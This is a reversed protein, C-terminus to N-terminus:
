FPELNYIEVLAVGTADNKGRVIATYGGPPLTAVIASEHADTPAVGSDLIDQKQDSEWEDNQYVMNGSGDHLELIPDPLAGAVGQQALSPGIARVIVNTNTGSGLIFGGIMVNDNSQVLGRTSLNVLRAVASSLDYIEILGIGPSGDASRLVATYGGPPFNTVIASERDNQPALGTAEILLQASKWDDNSALVGAPVRLELVPDSLVNAVGSQALSPGLGRILMKKSALDGNVIFGGIMV